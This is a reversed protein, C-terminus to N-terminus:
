NAVRELTDSECMENEKVPRAPTTADYCVLAFGGNKVPERKYFNHIKMQKPPNDSPFMGIWDFQYGDRIKKLSVEPKASPFPSSTDIMTSAAWIGRMTNTKVDYLYYDTGRYFRQDRYEYKPCTKKILAFDAGGDLVRIQYKPCTNAPASVPSSIKFAHSFKPSSFTLWGKQPDLSVNFKAAMVIPITLQQKDTSTSFLILSSWRTQDNPDSRLEDELKKGERAEIVGPDDGDATNPCPRVTCKGVQSPTGTAALSAHTIFLYSFWTVVTRLSQKNM